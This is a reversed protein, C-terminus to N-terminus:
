ILNVLRKKKKGKVIKQEAWMYHQASIGCLINNNEMAYKGPRDILISFTWAHVEFKFPM